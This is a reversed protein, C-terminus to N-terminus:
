TGPSDSLNKELWSQCAQKWDDRQWRIKDHSLEYYDNAIYQILQEATLNDTYRSM